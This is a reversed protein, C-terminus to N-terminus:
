NFAIISIAPIRFYKLGTADDDDDVELLRRSGFPGSASFTGKFAISNHLSVTSLIAVHDCTVKSVYNECWCLLIFNTLTYCVRLLAAMLAM